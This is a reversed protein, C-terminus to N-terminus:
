SSACALQLSLVTDTLSVQMKQSRAPDLKKQSQLLNKETTARTSHLIAIQECEVPLAELSYIAM